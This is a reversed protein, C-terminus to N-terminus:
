GCHVVVEAAPLEVVFCAGGLAGDEAHIRGGHSELIRRCISLGLGTGHQKTTVRPAFIDGVLYRPLGCGSDEFTMRVRPGPGAPADGGRDIRVLLEGGGPMADLANRALNLVVQRLQDEDADVYVAQPPAVCGCHVQQCEARGAVLWMTDQIIQRLDVRRKVPTQGRTGALLRDASTELRAVERAIVTLDQEPLGTRLALASQVLAKMPTLANRIEHVLVVASRDDDAARDRGLGDRRWATTAPERHPQRLQRALGFASVAAAFGSAAMLNLLLGRRDTLHQWQLQAAATERRNLEVLQRAPADITRPIREIVADITRTGAHHAVLPSLDRMRQSLETFGRELTDLRRLQLDSSSLSKEMHILDHAAQQLEGIEALEQVDGTRRFRNLQRRIDRSKGALSEATATGAIHGALNRVNDATLRDAHWFGLAGLALFAASAGLTIFATKQLSESKM